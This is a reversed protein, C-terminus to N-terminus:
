IRITLLSAKGGGGEVVGITGAGVFFQPVEKAAPSKQLIATLRM